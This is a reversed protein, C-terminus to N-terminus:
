LYHDENCPAGDRVVGIFINMGYGSGQALKMSIAHKGTGAGMVRGVVMCNEWNEDQDVKTAISNNPGSLEFVKDKILDSAADWEWEEEPKMCLAVTCASEIEFDDSLPEESGDEAGEVLMFLEQRHRLAGEAEEIEAKLDRFNSSSGGEEELMMGFSAGAMTQVAVEVLGKVEEIAGQLKLFELLVARTLEEKRCLKAGGM